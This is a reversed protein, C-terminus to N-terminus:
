RVFGNSRSCTPAAPRVARERQAPQGRSRCRSRPSSSCRWSSTMPRVGPWAPPRCPSRGRRAWRRWRGSGPRSRCPCPARRWSSGSGSRGGRVREDREVARRDRVLQELALEEAVLAAREGAGGLAADALELGGGAAGEEEVLDAVHREAQLRLQQAHQLLALERADAAALAMRASTRMTAAM